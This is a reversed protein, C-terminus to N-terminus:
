LRLTLDLDLHNVHDVLPDSPKSPPPPPHHAFHHIPDVHLWYPDFFRSPLLHPQPSPLATPTLNRDAARERKHANQHGGLAQSTCFKRPCYRCQFIRPSSPQSSSPRRLSRPSASSQNLLEYQYMGGSEGM